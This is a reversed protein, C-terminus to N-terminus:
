NTKTLGNLDGKRTEQALVTQPFLNDTIIQVDESLPNEALFNIIAEVVERDKDGEDEGIIIRIM